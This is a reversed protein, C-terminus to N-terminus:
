AGSQGKWVLKVSFGDTAYLGDRLRSRTRCRVSYGQRCVMDVLAEEDAVPIEAAAKNNGTGPLAVAWALQGTSSSKKVYAYLREGSEHLFHFKMCLQGQTLTNM